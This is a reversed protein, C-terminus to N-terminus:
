GVEETIFMSVPIYQANEWLQNFWSMGYRAKDAVLAPGVVYIEERSPYQEKVRELQYLYHFDRKKVSKGAHMNLLEQEAEARTFKGYSQVARYTTKKKLYIRRVHYITWPINSIAEKYEQLAALNNSDMVMDVLAEKSYLTGRPNLTLSMHEMLLAKAVEHPHQLQRIRLDNINQKNHGFPCYVCASKKWLVGLKENIYDLCEQRTWQWELLPYFGKREHTYTAMETRTDYKKSKTVRDQEEASFGFAIREKIATRNAKQINLESKEVRDTEEANYGFAHNIPGRVNDELWSEIVFNKFKLACRHEGAYQPVTGADLQEQSLKYDGELFCTVPQRTDDLVTIGEKELHGHRAVQIYRIQHKRLLPLIYTEVDHGTDPWEDGTQATIVILKDLSCPCTEPEFIWRLLIATSEVGMGYSLVIYVVQNVIDAM